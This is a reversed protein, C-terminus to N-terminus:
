IINDQNSSLTNEKDEEGSQKERNRVQYHFPIAMTDM